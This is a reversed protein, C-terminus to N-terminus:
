YEGICVFSFDIAINNIASGNNGTYKYALTDGTKTYFQTPVAVFMTFYDSLYQNWSYMQGGAITKPQHPTQMSQGGGTSYAVVGPDTGAVFSTIRLDGFAYSGPDALYTGTRNLKMGAIPIGTSNTATKKYLTFEFNTLLTDSRISPIYIDNIMVRTVENPQQSPANTSTHSPVNQISGQTASAVRFDLMRIVQTM